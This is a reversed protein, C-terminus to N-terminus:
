IYLLPFIIFMDIIFLIDLINEYINLLTNAKLINNINKIIIEKSINKIKIGGPYNM